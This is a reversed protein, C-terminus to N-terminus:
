EDNDKRLQINNGLWYVGLGILAAIVLAGVLAFTKM